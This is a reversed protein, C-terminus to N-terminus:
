TVLCPLAPLPASLAGRSSQQAGSPRVQVSATSKAGQSAPAAPETRLVRWPRRGQSCNEVAGKKAPWARLASARSPKLTRARSCAPFASSAVNHSIAWQRRSPHCLPRGCPTSRFFYGLLCYKKREVGQPRTCQHRRAAADDSPARAGPAVRAASQFATPACPTAVAASASLPIRRSTGVRAARHQATDHPTRHEPAPRPGDPASAPVQVTHCVWGDLAESVKRQL